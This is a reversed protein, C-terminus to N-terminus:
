HKLEAPVKGGHESLKRMVQKHLWVNMTASDRTDGTYSLERALRKRAGLSSDLDILKMLDVISKRWDLKQKAGSARRDLVVAIDIEAAGASPAASAAPTATTAAPAAAAPPADVPPPTGRAPTATAAPEVAGRFEDLTQAPPPAGPPVAGPPPPTRGGLISSMISGLITM